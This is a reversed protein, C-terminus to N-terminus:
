HTDRTRDASCSARLRELERVLDDRSLTSLSATHTREPAVQHRGILGDLEALTRAASARANAAISRDAVMTQLQSRIDYGLTGGGLMTNDSTSMRKPRGAHYWCLTQGKMAIAGCRECKPQSRADHKALAALSNANGHWGGKAM